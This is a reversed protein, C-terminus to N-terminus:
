AMAASPQEKVWETALAKMCVRDRRAIWILSWCQEIDKNVNECIEHVFDSWAETCPAIHDETAGDHCGIATFLYHNDVHREFSYNVRKLHFTMSIFVIENCAPPSSVAFSCGSVALRIDRIRGSVEKMVFLHPHMTRITFKETGAGM